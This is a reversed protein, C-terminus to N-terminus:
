HLILVRLLELTLIVAKIDSFTDSFSFSMSKVVSKWFSRDATSPPTIETVKEISKIKVECLEIHKMHKNM